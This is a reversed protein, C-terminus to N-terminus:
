SYFLALGLLKGIISSRLNISQPQGATMVAAERTPRGGPPRRSTAAKITLPDAASESRGRMSPATLRCSCGSSNNPAPAGWLVLARELPVVIPKCKRAPALLLALARVRM